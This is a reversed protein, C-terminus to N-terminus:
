KSSNNLLGLRGLEEWHFPQNLVTAACTSTLRKHTEGSVACGGRISLHAAGGVSGWLWAPPHEKPESLHVRTSTFSLNGFPEKDSPNYIYKGYVMGLFPLSSCIPKM